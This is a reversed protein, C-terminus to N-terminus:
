IKDTVLETRLADSIYMEINKELISIEIISTSKRWHIDIYYLKEIKYFFYLPIM